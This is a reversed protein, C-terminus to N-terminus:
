DYNQLNSELASLEAVTNINTFVEPEASFDAKVTHHLTLWNEVKREGSTLYAALSPKLNINLALLVPHYRQGDFAVAIDANNQAKVALLKQLHPTIVLPTDCPMALLIGTKAYSMSSLLGALPGDFNDTQDSIVPLGFKEYEEINRNANIITQDSIPSIAAIAYSVMPKGKFNILGKDRDNMRRARGGALIVGTVKTQVDM